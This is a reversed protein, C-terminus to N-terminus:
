EAGIFQKAGIFSRRTITTMEGLREPPLAVTSWLTGAAGEDVATGPAFTRGIIIIKTAM